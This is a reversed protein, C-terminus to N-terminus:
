SGKSLEVEKALGEKDNFEAVSVAEAPSTAVLGSWIADFARGFDSM